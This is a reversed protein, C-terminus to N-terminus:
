IANRKDFSNLLVLIRNECKQVTEQKLDDTEVLSKIIAMLDNSKASEKVEKLISNINEEDVGFTSNERFVNYVNEFSKLELIEEETLSSDAFLKFLWTSKEKIEKKVEELNEKTVDLRVKKYSKNEIFEIKELSEESVTLLLFGNKVEPEFKVPTPSSTYEINIYPKYRFHIDSLIVYNFKRSICENNVEAPAFKIASRYHSILYNNFRSSLDLKCIENIKSHEVLYFRNKGITLLGKKIYLFSHQPLFDYTTTTESINEHNGGLVIVPASFREIFEYFLKIELFSPEAKDFVDGNLIILDPAQLNVRRNIYLLRKSEFEPFKSANIHIDGVVAIKHIPEVPILGTLGDETKRIKLIQTLTKM